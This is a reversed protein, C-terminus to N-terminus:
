PAEDSGGSSSKTGLKIWEQPWEIDEGWRGGFQPPPKASVEAEREAPVDGRSRHPTALAPVSKPWVANDAIAGRTAIEAETGSLPEVLLACAFAFIAMIAGTRLPYDVFSHAALLAVVITAARALSLDLPRASVPFTRWLKIARSAFWILFALLIGMGIVGTELWLELFDDHAHNAYANILVYQPEEFMGYVPVFTGMGSGLPMFSLAARLTDHTFGIRADELPDSGFRELIRYLAFQVVLMVALAIAGLLFKNSALRGPASESANRQSPLAIAFAAASAVMTLGLGARSRAMAEATIFIIPVVFGAALAVIMVPEFSKVDKWTGTKFAVDIAWAIAFLLVAYLLAAFHNRNAFFGVAETPNTFAFFRLASAPGQAVQILGVFASIIGVAVLVLSLRRRERYSLQIVGIFIAFPPLLSLFSLWTANPSVSIPMWPRAGGLLDFVETVGERGPLNTWIWPPLPILQVLPLLAIALCFLLPWRARKRTEARDQLLDILSWLVIMLAPVALLQLIADSLFGPRTGGGLLVSSIVMFACTGFVFGLKNERVQLSM